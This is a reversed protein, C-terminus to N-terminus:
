DLAPLAEGLANKAWRDLVTAVSALAHALDSPFPPDPLTAVIGPHFLREYLKTFFIAVRCGWTTLQYTHTDPIRQILGKLRLRRLDYSRPVHYTLGNGVLQRFTQNSTNFNISSM